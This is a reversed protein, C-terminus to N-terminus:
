KEFSINPNNQNPKAELKKYYKYIVIFNDKQLIVVKASTQHKPLNMPPVRVLHPDM